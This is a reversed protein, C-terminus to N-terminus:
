RIVVVHNSLAIAHLNNKQTSKAPWLDSKVGHLKALKWINDGQKLPEAINGGILDVSKQIEPSFRPLKPQIDPKKQEPQSAPVKPAPKSRNFLYGGGGIAALVGMVALSVTLM